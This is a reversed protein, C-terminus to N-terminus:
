THTRRPRTEQTAHIEQLREAMRNFQAGLAELEDGTALEIRQDLMGEGIETARAELQRIPRVM